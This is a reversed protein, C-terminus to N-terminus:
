SEFLLLLDPRIYELLPTTQPLSLKMAVEENNTKLFMFMLAIISGTGSKEVSKLTQIDRISTGLFVLRDIIHSDNSSLIQEGKGLNIYGLSIGASLQYCESVVQKDNITLTSSIESLLIESMRSHRTELYVLGVGIIGAIQVPLQVNLNTSGAPLFAVVHVSLVKTMKTDMTGKLSASMGILLGISTYVHKPGLYNYIHWEELKRLHGNLGLGLLFGAHQSNLTPPKNFVVWSGSIDDFNKSVSLGASAGNHFYGWEFLYVPIADNELNVNINDPLILTTFNMKPIPFGETVLPKKSSNFVAGRGIPTTLTRLAIIACLRRQKVLKEYDDLGSVSEFTLTQIKSTQLLKTLEYFRRDKSFILKTVLFKDAESSGDWTSVPERQALEALLQKMPKVSLSKDTLHQRKKSENVDLHLLDNRGILKLGEKSINWSSKLRKQCLEIINRFIFYIGPPYTELDSIEIGYSVMNRILDLFEYESSIIVEFLRLIYYTRPTIISDIIDDEGAIVSFTVYKVIASSFLSGLSELINPPKGFYEDIEFCINTDIYKQDIQYYSQWPKSWSMWYVLQCLLLSLKHLQVVALINLRLDERISHLALVIKPLLTILSLSEQSLELCSDKSSISVNNIKRSLEVFPIVETIENKEIDVQSLDIKEPLCTALLTIVYLKWDDCNPINLSINACWQLWFKEYILDHSL